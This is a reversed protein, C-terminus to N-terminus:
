NRRRRRLFLSGLVGSVLLASTPEPVATIGLFAPVAENEFVADDLQHNFVIFFQESELFYSGDAATIELQALLGYAGFAADDDIDFDVHGHGEGDGDAIVATQPNDGTATAGDLVLPVESVISDDILTRVELVGSATIGATPDNPDFYNLYGAGGVTSADIIRIGVFDNPNIDGEFGPDDTTFSGPIPEAFESEYVRIGDVTTEAAGGFIIETPNALNDLGYEIDSHQASSVAALSAVLTLSLLFKGMRM